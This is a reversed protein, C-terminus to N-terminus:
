DAEGSETGRQTDMWLYHVIQPIWCRPKFPNKFPGHRFDHRKRFILHRVKAETCSVFVVWRPVGSGLDFGAKEVDTISTRRKLVLNFLTNRLALKLGRFQYDRIELLEGHVLLNPSPDLMSVKFLRKTPPVGHELLKQRPVKLRLDKKHNAVLEAEAEVHRQASHSSPNGEGEKVRCGKLVRSLVNGGGGSDGGGWLYNGLQCDWWKGLKEIATISEFSACFFNFAPIQKLIM